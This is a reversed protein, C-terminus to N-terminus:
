IHSWPVRSNAAICTSNGFRQPRWGTQSIAQTPDVHTSIRHPRATIRAASTFAHTFIKVFPVVACQVRVSPNRRRQPQKAAHAPCQGLKPKYQRYTGAQHAHKTHAHSCPHPTGSTFQQIAKTSQGKHDGTQRAGKENVFLPDSDRHTYLNTSFKNHEWWGGGCRGGRQTRRHM